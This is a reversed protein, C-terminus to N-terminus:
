RGAPPRVERGARPVTFVRRRSPSMRRRSQRPTLVHREGVVRVRQGAGIDCVRQLVLFARLDLFMQGAAVHASLLHALEGLGGRAEAERHGGDRAPPHAVVHETADGGDALVDGAGFRVRAGAACRKTGAADGPPREGGTDGRGGGEAAGGEPLVLLGLVCAILGALGLFSGPLLRLLERRDEAGPRWIM